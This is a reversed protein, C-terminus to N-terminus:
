AKVATKKPASKKAATRKAKKQERILAMREEERAHAAEERLRKEEAQVRLYGGLEEEVRCALAEDELHLFKEFAAPYPFAKEGLAEDEFRVRIHTEDLASVTGRGFSKHRIAKGIM